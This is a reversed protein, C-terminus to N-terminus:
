FIETKVPPPTKIYPKRDKIKSATFIIGSIMGKAMVNDGVALGLEAGSNSQKTIIANSADITYTTADGNFRVKSKLTIIKGNISTVTGFVRKKYGNMGSTGFLLIVVLLLMITILLGTESIM